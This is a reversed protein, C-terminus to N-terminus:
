ACGCFFYAILIFGWGIGCVAAGAAAMPNSSNFFAQTPHPQLKEREFLQRLRTDPANLATSLGSSHYQKEKNRNKLQGALSHLEILRV